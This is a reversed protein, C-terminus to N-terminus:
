FEDNNSKLAPLSKMPHLEPIVCRQEFVEDNKSRGGKSTRPDETKPLEPIVHKEQNELTM